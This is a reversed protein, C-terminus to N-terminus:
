NLWVLSFFMSLKQNMSFLHLLDKKSLGFQVFVGSGAIGSKQESSGDIWGVITKSGFMTKKYIQSSMEPKPKSTNDEVHQLKRTKRTIVLSEKQSIYGPEESKWEQLIEGQFVEGFTRGNPLQVKLNEEIQDKTPLNIGLNPFTILNYHWGAENQLNEIFIRNGHPIPSTDLNYEPEFEEPRITFWKKQEKSTRINIELGLVRAIFGM